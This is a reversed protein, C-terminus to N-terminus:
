YHVVIMPTPPKAIHPIAQRIEGCLCLPCLPKLLIEEVDRHHVLMVLSGMAMMTLAPVRGDRHACHARCCPQRVGFM